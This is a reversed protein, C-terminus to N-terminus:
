KRESWFRLLYCWKATKGKAPISKFIKNEEKDLRIGYRYKRVESEPLKKRGRNEKM